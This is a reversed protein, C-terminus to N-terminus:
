EFMQGTHLNLPILRGNTQFFEDLGLAQAFRDYEFMVLAGVGYEPPGATAPDGSGNAINRDWLFTHVMNNFLKDDDFVVPGGNVDRVISGNAAFVITLSTFDDATGGIFNYMGTDFDVFDDSLEGFAIMGPMRRPQYGPALHFLGNPALIMVAAYAGPSNSPSNPDARQIHVAAYTSKQIAQARAALVQAALINFAQSESGATFLKVISPLAVTALLLIISIVVLLEILTFASRGPHGHRTKM